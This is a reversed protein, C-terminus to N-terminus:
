KSIFIIKVDKIKIERRIEFKKYEDDLEFFIVRFILFFRLCLINLNFSEKRRGFGIGKRGKREFIEFLVLALFWLDNIILGKGEIVGEWLECRIWCYFIVYGLNGVKEIELNGWVVEVRM